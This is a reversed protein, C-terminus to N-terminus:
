QLQQLFVIPAGGTNDKLVINSYYLYDECGLFLKQENIENILKINVWIRDYQFFSVISFFRWFCLRETSHEGNFLPAPTKFRM